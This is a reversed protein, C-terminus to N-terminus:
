WAITAGNEGDEDVTVCVVRWEYSTELHFAVRRGIMECSETGHIPADRLYSEVRRKLIIFEVDRDDHDVEVEVRLGFMHRHEVRLHAVEDPADPWRHFGEVRTTAFVTSVGSLKVKAEVDFLLPQFAPPM